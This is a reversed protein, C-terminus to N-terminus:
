FFSKSNIKVCVLYFTLHFSFSISKFYMENVKM